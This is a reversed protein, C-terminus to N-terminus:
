IREKVPYELQGSGARWEHQPPQLLSQPLGRIKWFLNLSGKGLSIVYVDRM